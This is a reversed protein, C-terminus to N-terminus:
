REKQGSDLNSQELRKLIKIKEQADQVLAMPLDVGRLKEEAEKWKSQAILDLGERYHAQAAELNAALFSEVVKRKAQIDRRMPELDAVAPPPVRLIEFLTARIDEDVQSLAAPYEPASEAAQGPNSFADLKQNLELIQGSAEQWSKKSILDLLKEYAEVVGKEKERIKGEVLESNIAGIKSLTDTIFPRIMTLVVGRHKKVDNAYIPFALSEVWANRAALSDGNKFADAAPLYKKKFLDELKNKYSKPLSVKYFREQEAIMQKFGEFTWTQSPLKQIFGTKFPTKNSLIKQEEESLPRDVSLDIKRALINREELNLPQAGSDTAGAKSREMEAPGKIDRKSADKKHSSLISATKPLIFVFFLLLFLIAILGLLFPKLFSFNVPLKPSSAPTVKVAPPDKELRTADEEKKVSTSWFCGPCELIEKEEAEFHRGCHTCVYRVSKM